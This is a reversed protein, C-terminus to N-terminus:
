LAFDKAYHLVEAFYRVYRLVACLSHGWVAFDKAYHLVETVLHSTCRFVFMTYCSWGTFHRQHSMGGM